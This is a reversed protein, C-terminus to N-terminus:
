LRHSFLRMSGNELRGVLIMTRYGNQLSSKLKMGIMSARIEVEYKSSYEIDRKNDLHREFPRHNNREFDNVKQLLFKEAMSDIQNRVMTQIDDLEVNTSM